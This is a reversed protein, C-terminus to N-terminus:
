TQAQLARDVDDVLRQLNDLSTCVNEELWEESTNPYYINDLALRLQERITTWKSLLSVAEPQFHHVMIPHVIQRKRHYPSFWGTVYRNKELLEDVSTKLFLSVQTVLALIDSGPFSGMCSSMANDIDLNCLGLSQDVVEKVKETYGGHELMQLCVALSPIGVPLLECLVSFHDYRQWGTLAIGQVLDAVGGNVVQLWHLHNEVHHGIPTITQNVGTAGKFASALWLKTFGGRRYKEMLNIKNNADLDSVYDWIMPEVLKAVGSEALTEESTNRLMDDWIIPTVSPFSSALHGAVAKVHDLFLREVTCEAELLCHQSEKGEGLYYVEDAGIHFWKVNRHADMVQRLMAGVLQLSEEKHPNLANPFNEMERLHSFQQHKLVFELHGFTQVLPIVELSHANALNQIEEIEAHSYAYQARLCELDGDYPFTDEYEILLGSAGLARFLPFVQALYSVKPPAGKLDLHVLKLGPMSISTM